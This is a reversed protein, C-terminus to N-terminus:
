DSGDTLVQWREVFEVVQSSALHIQVGDVMVVGVDRNDTFNLLVVTPIFSRLDNNLRQLEMRIARSLESTTYQNGAVILQGSIDLNITLTATELPKGDPGVQALDIPEDLTQTIQSVTMFFIILLFVIDIMPTMNMGIKAPQRIRSLRM